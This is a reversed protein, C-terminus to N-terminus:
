IRSKPMASIACFSSSKHLNKNVQLIEERSRLRDYYFSQKAILLWQRFQKKPSSIEIFHWDTLMNPKGNAQRIKKTKGQFNQYQRTINIIRAIMYTWIHRILQLKVILQKCIPNWTTEKAASSSTSSHFSSYKM